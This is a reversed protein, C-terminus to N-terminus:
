GPNETTTFSRMFAAAHAAPLPKSILYGQIKECGIGRLFDSQAQTEVGEAVVELGLKHALLMSVECIDAANADTEIDTVFSRDIKLTQIPFQKLYALSSYGTGFDDISFSPGMQAILRIIRETEAPSAMAISETIELGLYEPSLGTGSLVTGIRAPLQPDGFQAPSLNVSIHIHELGTAHWEATQRCAEELVWDGLPAILGTEEAMPIFESPSVLGRTPHEWRVLAEVGCVRNAQLDFLPQYHLVFQNQEVARRLDAELAQRREVALQFAEKFFQFSAKGNAKAQYMAVDAKKLLEDAETSDDPYLCIGISPSSHLEKEGIQYPESVTAVVKDAVHAADAPQDIESLVIVFEDGGLRVVLDSHRVCQSLRHAVEALVKDGVLHGLTDNIAKFNDLDIVMLALRTRNRQAIALTQALREKLSTRNPLGTLQDFFALNRIKAESHKRETIDQLITAFQNTAPRFAMVEFHKDLDASYNEYFAPDGSLAVRGFTEIWYPELKPLVELATRGVVAQATLGTMREFAPNVALFRYDVPVGQDNCVIEHLAFGNLMERFLVQYNEAVRNYEETAQRAETIDIMIGRLWRPAGNEEVVSVLDKLWVTHGDKAIFRYEFAHPELRRTCSACLEPAWTRDEPHMNEVWFGPKRWDAVPFGLIDEAKRSVFTFTLTRADAEWVIGNTTNVIDRFRQESNSLQQTREAIRQELHEHSEQLSDAMQNFSQALDGIEDKTEVAARQTLQGQTIAKITALLEHIPRLIESTLRRSLVVAGVLSALFIWAMFTMAHSLQRRMADQAATDIAATTAELEKSLGSLTETTRHSSEELYLLKEITTLYDGADRLIRYLQRQMETDRTEDMVTQRLRALSSRSQELVAAPPRPARARIDQHLWQLDVIHGILEEYAGHSSLGGHHPLISKLGASIRQQLLDIQSNLAARQDAEAVFKQFHLRYSDILPLLKSLETNGEVSRGTQQRVRDLSLFIDRASERSPAQAYRGLASNILNIDGLSRATEQQRDIRGSVLYATLVAVGANLAILLILGSFSRGIKERLKRNAFRNM